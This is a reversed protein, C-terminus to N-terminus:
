LVIGQKVKGVGFAVCFYWVMVSGYLADCCWVMVGGWWAHCYMVLVVNYLVNNFQPAIYRGM